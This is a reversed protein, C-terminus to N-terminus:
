WYHSQVWAYISPIHHSCWSRRDEIRHIKVCYDVYALYQPVIACCAMLVGGLIVAGLRRLKFNNSTVYIFSALESIVEVGYIVGSLIGNSRLTTAVGFVVGSLVVLIDGKGKRGELQADLSKAYLYFGIFNFFSFASEAYPASLFLGAPSIIHLCAALLASNSRSPDSTAPSITWTLQYLMLCSLLHFGHALLLGALAETNSMGVKRAYGLGEYDTETKM